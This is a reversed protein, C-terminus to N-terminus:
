VLVVLAHWELSSETIAMEVVIKLTRIKQRRRSHHASNSRYYIVFSADSQAFFESSSQGCIQDAAHVHQLDRVLMGTQSRFM